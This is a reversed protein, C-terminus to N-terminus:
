PMLAVPAVDSWALLEAVLLGAPCDRERDARRIVAGVPPLPMDWAGRLEVLLGAQLFQQVVNLPMLALLEREQLMSLLLMPSRSTVWCVPPQKKQEWLRAFDTGAMGTQAPMLWGHATLEEMSGVQKGALPHDVGCVVAYRDSVLPVFEFEAALMAPERLLLLDVSRDVLARLLEEPPRELVDVLVEPHAKSFAPLAPALLGSIAAAIAGVRLSLSAGSGMAAAVEACQQLSRMANRLLPLIAAALATPRMGRAHREFLPAEL